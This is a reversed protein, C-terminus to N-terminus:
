TWWIVEIVGDGGSAGNGGFVPGSQRAGGGGGGGAGLTGSTGAGGPGAVTSTGLGGTGPVNGLWRSAGGGGGVNGGGTLAGAAGGLACATGGGNSLLYPQVYEPMTPMGAFGGQGPAPTAMIVQLIAGSITWVASGISAQAVPLGGPVFTYATLSGSAYDALLGKGGGAGFFTLSDFTSNGGNGGTAGPSLAAGGAGGSGGAGVSYSLVSGPTVALYEEGALAGGGGGGGMTPQSLSSNGGGGGGGGGGGIGRVFLWFVGAPVTFTGSGSLIKRHIKSM